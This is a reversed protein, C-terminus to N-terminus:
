PSSVSALTISINFNYGSQLTTYFMDSSGANGYQINHNKGQPCFFFCIFRPIEVGGGWSLKVYNYCCASMDSPM